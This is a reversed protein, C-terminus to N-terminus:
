IKINKTIVKIRIKQNIYNIMYDVIREVINIDIMNDELLLKNIKTETLNLIIIESKLDIFSYKPNETVLLILNIFRQYNNTEEDIEFMKNINPYKKTLEIAEIIKKLEHIYEKLSEKGVDYYCYGRKYLLTVYLKMFKIEEIEM